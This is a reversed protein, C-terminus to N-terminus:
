DSKIMPRIQLDTVEATRPLCLANVVVQAVDEPQLLQGARYQKGEQTHLIEQTPTATRGPYISLVRIGDANVEARLSDAVAKLAHKTASYQSAGPKATLGVSSNIFVVQGRSQRLEPLLAQTLLYPALVNTRFMSLFDDAHAEAIRGLRVLGTSHVLIDLRSFDRSRAATLKDIGDRDSLDTAYSVAKSGCSAIERAVDQLMSIRRGVLVLTAGQKALALAIAKGIGSGAGTVVAIQNNFASMNM